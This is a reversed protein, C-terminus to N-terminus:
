GKKSKKGKKKKKKPAVVEIKDKVYEKLVKVPSFRLKNSAPKAKFWMEKGSFPNRGKRKEKAARFSIKLIGLEPLRIRRENKLNVRIRSCLAEYVAKVIKRSQGSKEAVETMLNMEEGKKMKVEQFTVLVKHNFDIEVVLQEGYHEKLFNLAADTISLKKGEIKKRLIEYVQDKPTHLYDVGFQRFMNILYVDDKAGGYRTRELKAQRDAKHLKNGEIRRSKGKEDEQAVRFAQSM